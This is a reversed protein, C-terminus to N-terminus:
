TAARLAMALLESMRDHLPISLDMRKGYDFGIAMSGVTGGMAALMNKQQPDSFVAGHADVWLDVEICQTLLAVLAPNHQFLGRIANPDHAFVMFRSDIAPIGIEVRHPHKATFVRTMNSFAERVAKGVSDLSKDAIHFGYRPPQQAPASWSCSISMGKDDTRTSQQFRVPVGHFNRVYEVSRNAGSLQQAEAMARQVHPEIPEPPLDTYRYGTRQFFSLMHPGMSAIAGRSKKMMWVSYAVAGAMLVVTFYLQPPM